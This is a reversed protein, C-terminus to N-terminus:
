QPWNRVCSMDNISVPAAYLLSEVPAIPSKRMGIVSGPSGSPGFGIEKLRDANSGVVPVPSSIIVGRPTM